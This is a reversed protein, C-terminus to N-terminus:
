YNERTSVDCRRGCNATAGAVICWHSKTQALYRVCPLSYCTTISFSTARTRTTVWALEETCTTICWPLELIACPGKNIDVHLLQQQCTPMLPHWHLAWGRKAGCAAGHGMMGYQAGCGSRLRAARLCRTRTRPMPTCHGQRRAQPLVRRLVRSGRAAQQPLFHQCGASQANFATVRGRLVQGLRWKSRSVYGGSRREAAM